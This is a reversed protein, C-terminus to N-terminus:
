KTEDKMVIFKPSLAPMAHCPKSKNRLAIQNEPFLVTKM